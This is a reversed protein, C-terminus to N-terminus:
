IDEVATRCFGVCRGGLRLHGCRFLDVRDGLGGRGEPYASRRITTRIRVDFRHQGTPRPSILGQGGQPAPPQWPM